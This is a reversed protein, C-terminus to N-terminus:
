FKKVTFKTVPLSFYSLLKFFYFILVVFTANAMNYKLLIISFNFMSFYYPPKCQEVTTLNKGVLNGGKKKLISSNNHVFLPISNPIAETHIVVEKSISEPKILKM